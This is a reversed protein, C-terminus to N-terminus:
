LLAKRYSNIAPEVVLRNEDLWECVRDRALRNRNEFTLEYDHYAPSVGDELDDLGCAFFYLIGSDLEYDSFSKLIALLADDAKWAPALYAVSILCNSNQEDEYWNMELHRFTTKLDNCLESSSLRPAENAVRAILPIAIDREILQWAWESAVEPAPNVKGLQGALLATICILDPQDELLM